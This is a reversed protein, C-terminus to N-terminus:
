FRIKYIYFTNVGMNRLQTETEPFTASRGVASISIFMLNQCITWQLSATFLRCCWGCNDTNMKQVPATEARLVWLSSISTLTCCLWSCSCWCYEVAWSCTSSRHAREWPRSELLCAREKQVLSPWCCSCVAVSHSTGSSPLPLASPSNQVSRCFMILNFQPPFTCM